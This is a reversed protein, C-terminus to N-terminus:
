GRVAQEQFGQLHTGVTRPHDGEKGGDQQLHWWTQSATLLVDNTYQILLTTVLCKFLCFLM